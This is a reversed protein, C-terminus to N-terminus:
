AQQERAHGVVGPFLLRLVTFLAVLGASSLLTLLTLGIGQEM